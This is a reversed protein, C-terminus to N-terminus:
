RAGGKSLRVLEAACYNLADMVEALAERPNNRGDDVHWPGYARRGDAMRGAITDLISREDGNFGALSAAHRVVRRYVEALAHIDELACAAPTFEIRLSACVNELGEGGPDGAVAIPWALSRLDISKPALDLPLLEWHYCAADLLNRTATADWAVLTAGRTLSRVHDMADVLWVANDGRHSRGGHLSRIRATYVDTPQAEFPDTRAVAIELLDDRDPSLGETRIAVFALASV